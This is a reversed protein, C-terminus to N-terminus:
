CEFVHCVVRQFYDWGFQGLDTLLDFDSNECNFITSNQEGFFVGQHFFLNRYIGVWGWHALTVFNVPNDYALSFIAEYKSRESADFTKQCKIIDFAAWRLLNFNCVNFLARDKFSEHKKVFLVLTHRKCEISLLCLFVFFFWAIAIQALIAWALFFSVLQLLSVTRHKLLRCLILRNTTSKSEPANLRLGTVINHLRTVLLNLESDHGFAQQTTEADIEWQVVSWKYKLSNYNLM